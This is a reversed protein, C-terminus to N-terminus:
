EGSFKNTASEIKSKDILKGGEKIVGLSAGKFTHLIDRIFGGKYNEEGTSFIRAFLSQSSPIVMAGGVIMFILFLTNAIRSAGDIQMKLLLPSLLIYLNISIISGYATVIKSITTERWVKFRAGDDLPLTSLTTPLIVYLLVIEYIRKALNLIAILLAGLVGFSGILCPIYMFNDPNIMGNNKWSIPFVSFMGYYEGFLERVTITSIDVESISYGGLYEGVCADFLIQTMSQHTSFHFVNTLLKLIGNSILILITVALFMALTGLISLFFKYVISGVERNSNIMNKILAIIMFVCSLGVSLILICWAITTVISDSLLLEIINVNGGHYSIDAAGSVVDFIEMIGDIIRLTWIFVQLIIEELFILM